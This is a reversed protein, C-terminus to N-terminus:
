PRRRRGAHGLGVDDDLAAVDGVARVGTGISGRAIRASHCPSWTVIQDDVCTGNAALAPTASVSSIGCFRIRTM